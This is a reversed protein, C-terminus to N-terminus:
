TGLSYRLLADPKRPVLRTIPVAMPVASPAATYVLDRPQGTTVLRPPEEGDTTPAKPSAMVM